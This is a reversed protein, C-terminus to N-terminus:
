LDLDTEGNIIRAWRKSAEIFGPYKRNLYDTADEDAEKERIAKNYRHDTKQFLWNAMAKKQEGSLVEEYSKALALETEFNETYYALAKEESDFSKDEPTRYRDAQYSVSAVGEATEATVEIINEFLDARYKGKGTKVLEVQSSSDRYETM